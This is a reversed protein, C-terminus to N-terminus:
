LPYTAPPWYPPFAAPSATAPVEQNTTYISGNHAWGTKPMFLAENHVQSTHEEYLTPLLPLPKDCHRQRAAATASRQQSLWATDSLSRKRKHDPVIASTQPALYSSESNADHTQAEPQCEFLEFDFLSMSPDEAGAQVSSVLDQSNTPPHLASADTEFHHGKRVLESFFTGVDDGGMLHSDDRQGNELCQWLRRAYKDDWQFTWCAGRPLHQRQCESEVLELISRPGETTRIELDGRISALVRKSRSAQGATQGSRAHWIIHAHYAVLCQDYTPHDGSPFYVCCYPCGFGSKAQVHVEVSGLSHQPDLRQARMCHLDMDVINEEEHQCNHCIYRAVDAKECLKKLHELLDNPRGYSHYCTPCEFRIVEQVQTDGSYQTFLSALSGRKSCHALSFISHASSSTSGSMFSARNENTWREVDAFSTEVVDLPIGQIAVLGKTLEKLKQKLKWEPMSHLLLVDERIQVLNLYHPLMKPEIRKGLWSSKAQKYIDKISM